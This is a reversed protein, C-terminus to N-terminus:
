KKLKPIQFPRFMWGQKSSQQRSFVNATHGQGWGPPLSRPRVPVDAKLAVWDLYVMVEDQWACVGEEFGMDPINASAFHM